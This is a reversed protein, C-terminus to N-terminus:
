MFEGVSVTQSKLLAELGRALDVMSPRSSPTQHWAMDLLKVYHAQWGAHFREPGPLPLREGNVM